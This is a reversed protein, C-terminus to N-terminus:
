RLRYVFLVLKTPTPSFRTYLTCVSCRMLSTSPSSPTEWCWRVSPIIWTVRCMCGSWARRVILDQSTLSLEIFFGKSFACLLHEVFRSVFTAHLLCTHLYTLTKSHRRLLLWPAGHEHKGFFNERWSDDSCDTPSTPIVYSSQFLTGCDLDRPQLLETAM